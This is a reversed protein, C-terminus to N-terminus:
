IKFQFNLFIHQQIAINKDNAQWLQYNISLNIGNTPSYNVGTIFGNGPYHAYWSENDLYIKDAYLKDFRAFFSLNKYFNYSSFLSFGYLDNQKIFLNNKRYNYEGGIKFKDLIEYGAFVSFLQREAPKLSDKSKSYDYYFRIILNDIPKIDLGTALQLDGYKDQDYRNGEGNTLALDLNFNKNIKFLGIIGLDASPLHFYRDQFTEAIYKLGWFKDQTEYNNMSVSGIKLKINDNIDWILEAIKLQMTYYSGTNEEYAINQLNGISDKIYIKEITTPRGAEIIIKGSLKENFKYKQGLYARDIAFAFKKDANNTINYEFKGFVDIIPVWKNTTSDKTQSLLNTSILIVLLFILQYRM